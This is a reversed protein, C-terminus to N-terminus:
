PIRATATDKNKIALDVRRNRARGADTANSAVPRYEAYGIASFNSPNHNNSSLILKLINLARETSLDWNSEFQVNRIPINDTHGSVLVEFNPHEVFMNSIAVIIERAKSKIVASGSDFLADDRISVILIDGNLRTEIQSTMNNEQVYKTIEQQQQQLEVLNDNSGVSQVSMNQSSTNDRDLIGSGGVFAKNFAQKMANYKQVDVNSSAFLVIFLALLLTLIDAYPILWAESVHEEDHDRKKSSM